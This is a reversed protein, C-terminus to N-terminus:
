IWTGVEDKLIDCAQFPTSGPVLFSILYISKFHFEFPQLWLGGSRVTPEPGQSAEWKRHCKAATGQHWFFPVQHSGHQSPFGPVATKKFSTGAYALLFTPVWLKVHVVNWGWNLNQGSQMSMLCLGTQLWTVWSLFCRVLGMLCDLLEKIAGM